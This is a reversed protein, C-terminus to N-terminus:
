QLILTHVGGAQARAVMAGLAPASALTTRVVWLARIEAAGNASAAPAAFGSMAWLAAATAAIARRVVRSIMPTALTAYFKNEEHMNKADVCAARLRHAKEGVGCTRDDAFRAAGARIKMGCALEGDLLDQVLHHLLRDAIARDRRRCDAEADGADISRILVPRDARDHAPNAVLRARQHHVVGEDREDRACPVRRRDHDDGAGS